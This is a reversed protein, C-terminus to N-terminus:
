LGVTVSIWVASFWRRGGCWFIYRRRNRLSEYVYRIDRVITCRNHVVDRLCEAETRNFGQRRLKSLVEPGLTVKEGRMPDARVDTRVSKLLKPLRAHRIQTPSITLHPLPLRPQLPTSLLLSLSSSVHNLTGTRSLLTAPTRARQHLLIRHSMTTTLHRCPGISIM